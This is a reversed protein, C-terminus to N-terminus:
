KKINDKDIITENINYNMLKNNPNLFLNYTEIFCPFRKRMTNLFKGVMYEYVLNDSDSKISCKLIANM